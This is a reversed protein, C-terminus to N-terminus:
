ESTIGGEFEFHGAYRRGVLLFIPALAVATLIWPLALVVQVTGAVFGAVIMILAGKLLSSITFLYRASAVSM